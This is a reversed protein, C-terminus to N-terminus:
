VQKICAPVLQPGPNSANAFEEWPTVRGAGLVHEQALEEVIGGVGVAKGPEPRIRATETRCRHVPVVDVLLLHGGLHDREPPEDRILVAVIPSRKISLGPEQFTALDSEM